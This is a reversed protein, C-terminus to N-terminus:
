SLREPGNRLTGVGSTFTRSNESGDKRMRVVQFVFAYKNKVIIFFTICEYRPRIWVSRCVSSSLSMLTGFLLMVACRYRIQLRRRNRLRRLASRIVRRGDNERERQALLLCLSATESQM